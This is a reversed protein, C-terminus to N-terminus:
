HMKPDWVNVFINNFYQTSSLTNFICHPGSIIIVSLTLRSNNDFDTTGLCEM